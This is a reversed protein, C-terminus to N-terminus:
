GELLQLGVLRLHRRQERGVSHQESPAPLSHNLGQRVIV